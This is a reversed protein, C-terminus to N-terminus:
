PKLRTSETLKRENFYPLVKEGIFKIREPFSHTVLEVHTTGSRFYEEIRKIIDDPSSVITYNEKIIEDNVTISM